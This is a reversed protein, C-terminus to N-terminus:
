MADVIYVIANWSCTWWADLITRSWNHFTEELLLFWGSMGVWIGQLSHIRLRPSM